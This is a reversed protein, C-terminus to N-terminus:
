HLKQSDHANRDGIRLTNIVIEKWHWHIETGRKEEIWTKCERKKFYQPCGKNREEFKQGIGGDGKFELKLLAESFRGSL